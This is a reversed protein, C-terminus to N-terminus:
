KKKEGLVKFGTYKQLAKPIKVTGDKKQNQEILAVMIRSTAIATNNLTHVFGAPAQGEKEKYKIGLSRAQYDTCNSNSGTERFEGDAMWSEIDYKKAAIDGIDGTCVNVVRYHLNLKKYLAESNKQLQEHLKWSDKPECFVFQEIKNFNHVRFLGKTYKGHAGVEKRFCPSVGACLIPLDKELLTKDMLMAAMPHESTAIMYLDEGEVKYMVSEFDGLSTVGEYPKRGMMLPPEIITFGKGKLFDLAFRQLAMDLLVADGKLYYFGHGVIKAAREMDIMGLKELIELHGKAAFSFKPKKGEKRVEKNDKDDKGLPVSDHLMNPLNALLLDTEKTLSELKEELEKIEQPIHRAKEALHSIDKGGLKAQSIEKTVLNRQMRLDEARKLIELRERDKASLLDLLKVKEPDNRKELNKRVFEPKERILKIDLM